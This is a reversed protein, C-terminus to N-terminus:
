PALGINETLPIVIIRPDRGTVAGGGCTFFGVFSDDICLIELNEHTQEQISRVCDSVFAEVNYRSRHRLGPAM